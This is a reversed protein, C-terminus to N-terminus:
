RVIRRVEDRFGPCVLRRMQPCTRDRCYGEVAIGVAGQEAICAADHVSIGHKQEGGAVHFSAALKFPSVTTAVVMDFM